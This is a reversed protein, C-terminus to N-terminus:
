RLRNVLVFVTFPEKLNVVEGVIECNISNNNPFSVNVDSVICRPEYNALYRKVEDELVVSMVPSANEFLYEYIPSYIEPHYPKDGRKLRMLHMISQKVSNVQKKIAINKTIPHASFNFDIDVYEKSPKTIITAM